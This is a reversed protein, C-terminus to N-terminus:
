EIRWIRYHGGNQRICKVKIGLKSARDRWIAPSRKIPDFISDDDKQGRAVRLRSLNEDMETDGGRSPLPIGSEIKYQM